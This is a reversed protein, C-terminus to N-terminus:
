SSSISLWRLREDMAQALGRMDEMVTAAEFRTLKDLRERLDDSSGITGCALREKVPADM